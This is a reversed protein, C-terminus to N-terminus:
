ELVLHSPWRPMHLLQVLEVSVVIKEDCSDSMIRM